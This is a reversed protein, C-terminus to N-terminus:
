QDFLLAVAVAGIGAHVGIVPAVDIIFDPSQGLMATLKRAYIEARDPNHAHVIAYNWVERRGGSRDIRLIKAMNSPRSFSKGGDTAKGEADLTMIPKIHLLRGILGKVPGVRGGRVFYKM